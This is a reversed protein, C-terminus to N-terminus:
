KNTTTVEDLLYMISRYNEGVAQSMAMECTKASSYYGDYKKEKVECSENHTANKILDPYYFGRDGAMGCCGANEPILTEEACAGGITQLQGILGMKYASCVPHFVVSNKKKTINLKPLLHLAAFTISDLFVLKDFREQNEPTLYPRSNQITQTCSTIDLVVPLKGQESWSWVSDIAKNATFSYADTFGKSSFVQGCCTGATDHALIMEIGARKAVRMMINPMSKGTEADTGMMRSICSVFYVYDAQGVEHTHMLPPGTIEPIWQPFSPILHKLGKTINPLTKKGFIGNLLFGTKISIKASSEMAKFHKALRLAWKNSAVSHQERRLRKILDGTNINVPCDTACMGDVACTDLGDHQYDKLIDNHTAIDGSAKLRSLARRVGIRQRPTLTYHRSPCRRECYGCEVCKDVEEEVVPLSKLNKLHCNKDPNIIVGQNLLNKPDILNKLEKMISYAEAGWEIEVFPAVQRGTGHEAKMSGNYKGVVLKVLDDNFDGFIQIEEPTNIAQPLVFHLNGDKAHGFVIGKDYGFKKLLIQMDAIAEGLREVPFCIDEQLVATGKARVAAVTPYLGKRIKWYLAQTTYDTTFEAPHTIPLSGIVTNASAMLTELEQATECQYECLIASAEGELTKLIIPVGAIDEATRLSARDMFELAKAGSNRLAAIASCAEQPNKFFLLGTSKHAYDPVTNLQASAIFALTGEAGILLHAFIDLPHEYDIFANLGYGVTNKMEYKARIKEKLEPKALIRDRLTTIGKSINIENVEFLSYDERKATNYVNGNPLVFELSRLTHYANQVVGCCMGSSNNSLMGGLMAANISAPDPGIKRGYKKLQQNAAMGILGPYVEIWAGEEGVKCGSWDRSIDVLIGDTVSQGSLSTGAARFTLSIDHEQSFKFLAQVDVIDRPQVVAQPVLWYFSADGAFAYRDIARTKVRDPPLINLLKQFDVV